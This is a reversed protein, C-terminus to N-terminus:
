RREQCHPHSSARAGAAGALARRRGRGHCTVEQCTLAAHIHLHVAVVSHLKLYTAPARAQPRALCGDEDVERLRTGCVARRPRGRTRIGIRQM